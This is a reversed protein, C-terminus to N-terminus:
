SQGARKNLDAFKPKLVQTTAADDTAALSNESPADFSPVDPSPVDPSPASAAPVFNHPIPIIQGGAELVFFAMGDSTKGERIPLMVRQKTNVFGQLLNRVHAPQKILNVNFTRPQLEQCVLRLTTLEGTKPDVAEDISLPNVFFYAM